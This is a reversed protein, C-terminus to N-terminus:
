LLNECTTEADGRDREGSVSDRSAFARKELMSGGTRKRRRMGHVDLPMARQMPLRSAKPGRFISRLVIAWISVINPTTVVRVMM